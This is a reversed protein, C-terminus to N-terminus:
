EKKADEEKDEKKPMVSMIIAAGAGLAFMGM